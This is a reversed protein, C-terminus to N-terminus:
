KVFTTPYSYSRRGFKCRLLNKKKWYSVDHLIWTTSNTMFFREKWDAKLTKGTRGAVVRVFFVTRGKDHHTHMTRIPIQFQIFDRFFSGKRFSTEKAVLGHMGKCQVLFRGIFDHVGKHIKVVTGIGTTVQSAKVFSRMQVEQIMHLILTFISLDPTTFTKNFILMHKLFHVFHILWAVGLAGHAVFVNWCLSECLMHFVIMGVIGM